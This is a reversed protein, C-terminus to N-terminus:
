QASHSVNVGTSSMTHDPFSSPTSPPPPLLTLPEVCCVPCHLAALSSTYIPHSPTLPTTTTALHQVPGHKRLGLEETIRGALGLWCLALSLDPNLRFSWRCCCQLRSLLLMQSSLKRQEAMYRQGAHRTQLRPFIFDERFLCFECLELFLALQPLLLECAIALAQIGPLYISHIALANCAPSQSVM